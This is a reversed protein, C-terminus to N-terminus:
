EFAEQRRKMMKNDSDRKNSPLHRPEKTIQCRQSKTLIAVRIFVRVAYRLVLAILRKSMYQM